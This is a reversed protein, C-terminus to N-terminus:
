KLRLNTNYLELDDASLWRIDSSIKKLEGSFKYVIEAM